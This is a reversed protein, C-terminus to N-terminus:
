KLLKEYKWFDSCVSLFRLASPLLRQAPIRWVAKKRVEGHIQRQSVATRDVKRMECSKEDKQACHMRSVKSAGASENTKNYSAL